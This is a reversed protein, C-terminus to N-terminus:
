VSWRLCGGGGGGGGGVFFCGFLLGCVAVLFFFGAALFVARGVLALFRLIFFRLLRAAGTKAGMGTM